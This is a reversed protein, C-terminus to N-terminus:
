RVFFNVKTGRADTMLMSPLRLLRGLEAPAVVAVPCSSPIESILDALSRYLPRLDGGMRSGWPPNTVLAGHESFDVMAESLSSTHLELKVGAREANSTCAEIAGANRDSAVIRPASHIEVAARTREWLAADFCPMYQLEFHRNAGPAAGSAFLGAEIAITGAGALPDILPTRGDWGSARVLAHAIDERLPAKGSALRYGRRHLPAGSTDVSLTFSDGILRAHLRVGDAGREVSGKLRRTVGKFVADVIAGTHHLRSARSAGRSHARIELPREPDIWREVELKSVKRALEGVNAVRFEGIRARVQQACGLELNARYISRLGGKMVIGGPVEEPTGMRKARIEDALIPELGPACSVFLKM